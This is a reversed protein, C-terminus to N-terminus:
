NSGNNCTSSSSSGPVSSSPSGAAGPVGTHACDEPRALPDDKSRVGAPEVGSELSPWERAAVNMVPTVPDGEGSPRALDRDPMPDVADPRVLSVRTGAPVDAVGVAM